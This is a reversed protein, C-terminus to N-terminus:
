SANRLLISTRRSLALTHTGTGVLAVHVSDPANSKEQTGPYATVAGTSTESLSNQHLAHSRLSNEANPNLHSGHGGPRTLKEIPLLTQKDARVVEVEVKVEVEVVEVKVEVEVVEVEVVERAEAISVTTKVVEVRGIAISVTTKVVGM